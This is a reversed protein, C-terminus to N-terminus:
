EAEYSMGQALMEKEVIEVDEPTDVAYTGARTEVMQVAVGLELFRLIEIDEFNELESKRGFDRFLNLEDKNFAYICVQKKYRKPKKDPEKCGPLPARSMYILEDKENTIVKPINVNDAKEQADLYTFGNIVKTPNALKVSLIKLIDEPAVLPEDGQLNVFISADIKNAAEALRDTGTIAEGTMVVNFGAGVVTERINESDTAIYVNEVGIAQAALEAVWLIMPKGLLKVLPKGPYRSSAFRAPILIVARNTSHVNFEM